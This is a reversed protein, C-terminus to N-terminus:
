KTKAKLSNLGGVLFFGAEKLNSVHVETNDYGNEQREGQQNAYIGCGDAKGAVLQREITVSM